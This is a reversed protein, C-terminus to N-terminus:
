GGFEVSIGAESSGGSFGMAMFSHVEKIKM